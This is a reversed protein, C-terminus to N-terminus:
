ELFSRVQKVTTPVAWDRVIATKDPDTAVGQSSVVHGLYVVQKQFLHCKRPQLKLGHEQPRTFVQELHQLHTPFDPSYVIVDDLYILLHDYVQSGLCRQMLRQFLAPANCLVFPMRAFHYLRFPTTFATKEQDEPAVDVQWYGSALDLTSYWKAQTLSTLSEEICPLPFSNKHTVSNLKRYDVCFRWSG